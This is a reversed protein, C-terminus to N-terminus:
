LLSGSGTDTEQTVVVERLGVFVEMEKIFKVYIILFRFIIYRLSKPFFPAQHTQM